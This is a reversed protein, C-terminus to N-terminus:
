QCECKLRMSAGRPAYLRFLASTGASSASPGSLRPGFQPVLARSAVLSLPVAILVVANGRLQVQYRM